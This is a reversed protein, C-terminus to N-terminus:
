WVFGLATPQYCKPWTGTATFLSLMGNANMKGEHTATLRVDAGHKCYNSRKPLFTARIQDKGSTQILYCLCGPPGRATSQSSEHWTRVCSVVYVHKSLTEMEGDILERHAIYSSLSSTINLTPFYYHLRPRRQIYTVKCLPLTFNHKSQPRRSELNTQLTIIINNASTCDKAHHCNLM